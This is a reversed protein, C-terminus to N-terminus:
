RATSRRERWVMFLGGVLGGLGFSLLGRVLADFAFPAVDVLRGPGIAGGALGMLVALLVAALVGGACGRLAGEDWSATPHRRAARAACAAATLAPLVMLAMTWSGTGNGPLAAFLPVAPLPGLSTIAPSVLTGTGVTFGPGLLYAGTFLAANPLVAANVLLFMLADATGLHLGSLVNAATGFHVVLSALLVMSSVVLFGVVIRWALAVAPLAAAPLRAAWIAARGSGVAIAPWALVMCLLVAWLVVRGLSPRTEPTSALVGTLVGVVVYGATFLAVAAPVTWDREGDALADADPGHGSVSEGARLAFRWTVLAGILTIALPVLTIRVGQVSVGSGHGLLWAQAGTRLGDSPTGHGGADAAFWGVVGLALAVMLTSAAAAM